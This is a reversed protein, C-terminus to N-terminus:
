FWVSIYLELVDASFDYLPQEEAPADVRADRFDDYNFQIYSYNLNITGRELAGWTELPLNYTVGARFSHDNFTSLEKDRGLFNQADVFPFLDSYFDAADQTYYRYSFDLLWDSSFTYTYGVQGDWADVGWTDTFIRTNAYLASNGELFYRGGVAVATTTRTDPYVEKQWAYGGNGDDYRVDRYPNNLFGEDTMVELNITAVINRTVVQSLGLRYARRDIDEKFDPDIEGNVNQRVTDWGRAYGMNITTLGGFVEQSINFYATQAQFDDEDSDTYGASLITDGLLYDGGFSVETRDESYPSARTEVDISASSISDVYYNAYASFDASLKKRVLISPGTIEVGGGDYSHYLADARDEPLVQAFVASGALSLWGAAVISITHSRIYM